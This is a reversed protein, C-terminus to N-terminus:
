ASAQLAIRGRKTLTSSASAGCVRKSLECAVALYAEANEAEDAESYRLEEIIADEYSVVYAELEPQTRDFANQAGIAKALPKVDDMFDLERLIRIVREDDPLRSVDVRRPGGRGFGGVRQLPLANSLDKLYHSFEDGVATSILNRSTLLRQGWNGIRLLEIEKTIGSSLDSFEVILGHLESLDSLGPRLGRFHDAISELRKILREGLISFDTRSIMTDDSRQAVKRALRLIQWPFELRGMLALALYIARDPDREYLRDYIDRVSSVMIDDFSSILRPVEYHMQRVEDLIMFVDAIERADELIAFDGLKKMLRDFHEPETESRELAASMAAATAEQMVTIAASLAEEDGSDLHRHVRDLMDPFTDPLVDEQIWNWIPETSSRPIRGVEKETREGDFLFDEFPAMFLRQIAERRKEIEADDPVPEVNDPVPEVDDSVPQGLCERLEEVSLGLHSAPMAGSDVAELLKRAADSPLQSLFSRLTDAKEM